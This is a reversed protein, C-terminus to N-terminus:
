RAGPGVGRCLGGGEVAVEVPHLSAPVRQLAPGPADAHDVAGGGSGGSGIWGVWTLFLVNPAGDPAKPALYPTWDPESDRIDLIIIAQGWHVKQWAPM